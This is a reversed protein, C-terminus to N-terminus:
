EGTVPASIIKLYRGMWYPLLWIDGASFEASGNDGGDLQFRNANHREIPLENPPLVETLTQRRFNDPLFILDKRGSNKIHWTILDLPYKQLYWVAENLDVQKKGTLATFINWAAEKEPREIEWHDIIAEKFKAKLTDNFAYRYLGWYGLFYMEDDSHNWHGSLLKSLDDADDPAKAITKMPRMLNDLYGYKNLLELAKEKYIKKGTFHYATQLMATINSATIKRDGVMLPRANVYEPAWRGWLTPKGDWDILYMGNKIIHQMLTDILVIARKKLDPDDVLEALAGFAFIHGIAEDSSTTSKWDWDAEEAKRWPKDTKNYGTREFSRSPFGPIGNITYLREMADFSERCNQLAEPSHTVAYRFVEAGLYMSTWLGDNDSNEFFGTAIDGQNMNVVTANFGNRIHRERVQKEYFLAKEHLTMKESHIVGLGKDTLLLIAHGAGGEIAVIKNSPIWRKSVYYDYRGDARLMFAGEESGFWIHGEIEHVVTINTAPLKTQVLGKQRGTKTDVVFYGNTTGILLETNNHALAFSTFEKGAVIQEISKQQVSFVSVSRSGLLWFTNRQEDFQIDTISDTVTGQWTVLSDQILQLAKGDSILFNFNNGGCLLRVNPLHHKAYLKGAWANGLVAKDDAYVFHNKYLGFAQIKKDSTPRYSVDPVLRGPVLLQGAALRLLGEASFVQIIGNRDCYVKKLANNQGNVGPIVDYKISYQQNFPIDAYMSQASASLPLIGSITTVFFAATLWVFSLTRKM